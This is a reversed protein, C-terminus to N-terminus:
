RRVLINQTYTLNESAEIYGEIEDFRLERHTDYWARKIEKRTLELTGIKINAQGASIDPTLSVRNTGSTVILTYLGEARPAVLIFRYLREGTAGHVVSDQIDEPYNYEQILSDKLLLRAQTPTTVEDQEGLGKVNITFKRSAGPSINNTCSVDISPMSKLNELILDNRHDTATRIESELKSHHRTALYLAGAAMLTIFLLSANLIKLLRISM